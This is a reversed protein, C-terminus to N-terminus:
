KKWWLLHSISDENNQSICDSLLSGFIGHYILGRSSLGTILWINEHVESCAFRGIIPLRGYKGRKSQVRYGATLKIIEGHEWVFPSLEFSRMKLEEVVSSRDLPKAKYEHTAGILVHNAVPLPTLYKGSLIAENQFRSAIASDLKVEISQGRVLEVPLCSASEDVLINDHFLGSGAAYVVTDFSVLRDKWERSNLTEQSWTVRNSSLCAKWLGDLYSPMHIVKCGNKLQLGGKGPTGCAMEMEEPSLWTALEPYAKSTEILTGVSNETLALRYLHDRLVCDPNYAKSAEVLKNTAHLGELGLHLLKGKPSFPHLLGGAVSSAGGKGVDTKDIVTVHVNPNKELLHFTTSLGALGGGIVCIDKPTSGLTTISSSSFRNKRLQARKVATGIQFSQKFPIMAMSILALLYSRRSIKPM